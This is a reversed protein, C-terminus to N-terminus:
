IRKVSAREIIEHPIYSRFESIDKGTLLGDLKEAAHYGIRYLPQSVTTLKPISMVAMRTNDFGIISIEDPVKIGHEHLYSIAGLAREDSSAFIATIDSCKELLRKMADYGDEFRYNGYEICQESHCDIDYTRLARMFGQIRPLGSIPDLHSGSIMGIKTHGQQILYVTADFAAQEDNIKVSPIEYELSHTAALVVPMGLKQLLDYSDPYIPESTFIMGDIQKEKLMKFSSIMKEKNRDTNCIITNYGNESAADEVGRLVEAYFLNSIDPILVGISYTRKHILGRALANPSYGLEEIINLIKEKKNKTVMEPNNLVRSVTSISVGAQKAVDKITSKIKM